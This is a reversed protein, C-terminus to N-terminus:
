PCSGCVQQLLIPKDKCSGSKSGEQDKSYNFTGGSTGSCVASGGTTCGIVNVCKAVEVGYQADNIPILLETNYPRRITRAVERFENLDNLSNSRNVLNPTRYSSGLDFNKKNQTQQWILYAAVAVAGVGLLTQQQKTLTM